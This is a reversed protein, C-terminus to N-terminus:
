LGHTEFKQRFHLGRARHFLPVRGFRGAAEHPEVVEERLVEVVESVEVVGESVDVEAEGVRGREDLEVHGLPSYEFVGAVDVVGDGTEVLCLTKTLQFNVSTSLDLRVKLIITSANRDSM